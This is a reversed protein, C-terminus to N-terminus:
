KGGLEPSMAHQTAFSLAQAWQAGVAQKKQKLIKIQLKNNLGTAAFPCLTYSYFRITTPEIGM